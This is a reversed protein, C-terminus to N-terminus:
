ATSEPMIETAETLMRKTTAAQMMNLLDAMRKQTAGDIHINYILHREAEAKRAQFEARWSLIDEVARLRQAAPTRPNDILAELAQMARPTMSDAWKLAEEVTIESEEPVRKSDQYIAQFHPDDLIDQLTEEPIGLFEAIDEFLKGGELMAIIMPYKSRYDTAM